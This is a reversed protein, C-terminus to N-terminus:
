ANAADPQDRSADLVIPECTAGSKVAAFTAEMVNTIRSFPMVEPGGNTIANVLNEFEALHGKDISPTKMHKFNPWGYGKLVRFNDLRLVKGDAFVELTEKPYAKSGNGFYHLTGISGDAFELTISTKDDRVDLGASEGITVAYVRTVPAGALVSMLDIWHCGEGIIRGGGVKPDHVWSDAPSVGANVMMSMTLPQTRGVLLSQMKRVHPAFSRNFGVLMQRSGASAYATRIRELEEENLCLPKEVAIHKGAELAELVMPAHLDHRTLIVVLEIAPDEIIEKYDSTVREFGFKAGSHAGTVGGSSAITRLVVPCRKLVPLLTMRAFNGAGIVGVRVRGASRTKRAAKANLLVTRERPAAVEPYNLVIGLASSDSTLTRYGDAARQHEIRTSVLPTTDLKGTALADLIAEFNRQETWRVFGLPYDQGREEYTADYRGPGYSCSVQFSLEKRYFDSRNLELGVVGVLVIRGRKRCMQAAQHVISNDKASATIIVGDVGRGRSYAMASAVPDAGAPLDVVEAGLQRALELRQPNVDIGLVRCGNALLMQVTLLGILGLGTVVITEGFTPEILRIGQLGIAGLVTFAAAEDTVGDPIKACLNQPVCVMEAHPGNSVVRDGVAFDTVGEGVEVVVGANCYGLPLPEDLRAFVAKLTPLVGETKMKDLVQQVKDPQSRAKALLSSKGFEVLMRETGASVLSARSQILLHGRRVLPCPVEVLEVTGSNLNQLVQKM